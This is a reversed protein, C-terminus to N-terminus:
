ITGQPSFFALNLQQRTLRRILKTNGDLVAKRFLPSHRLQYLALSRQLQTISSKQYVPHDDLIHNFTFIALMAVLTDFSDTSRDM